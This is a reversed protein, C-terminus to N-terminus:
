FWCDRLDLISSWEFNVQVRWFNRKAPLNFFQGLSLWSSSMATGPGLNNGLCPVKTLSMVPVHLTLTPQRSHWWVGPVSLGEHAWAASKLPPPTISLSPPRTFVHSQPQQRGEGWFGSRIAWTVETHLSSKFCETKNKKLRRWQSSDFQMHKSHPSKLIKGRTDEWSVM